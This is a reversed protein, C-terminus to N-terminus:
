ARPHCPYRLHATASGASGSPRFHGLNAQVTTFRAPMRAVMYTFERFEGMITLVAELVAAVEKARGLLIEAQGLSDAENDTSATVNELLKLAESIQHRMLQPGTRKTGM